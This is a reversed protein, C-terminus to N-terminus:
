EKRIIGNELVYKQADVSFQVTNPQEIKEHYLLWGDLNSRSMIEIASTKDHFGGIKVRYLDTSDIFVPITNKVNNYMEVANEYNAFAGLQFYWLSDARTPAILAAEKAIVKKKALAQIEMSAINIARLDYHSDLVIAYQTHSAHIALLKKIRQVLHFFERPRLTLSDLFVIGKDALLIFKDNVSRDLSTIAQFDIVKGSQNVFFIGQQNYVLYGHQFEEFWIGGCQLGVSTQKKLMIDYYTLSNNIDLTIFRQTERSYHIAVVKDVTLKRKLEGSKLDFIKLISKRGSDVVLYILNMGDASIAQNCAIMPRYDGYEMGIGRTFAFNHKNITVIENTTILIIEANNVTLYNFRQPLPIHDEIRLLTLDIKYLARSTLVYLFDDICYDIITGSVAQEKAELNEIDVAFILSDVILPHNATVLLTFLFVIAM